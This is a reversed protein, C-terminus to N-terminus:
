RHTAPPRIGGSSNQRPAKWRPCADTGAHAGYYGSAKPILTRCDNPGASRSLLERLDGALEILFAAQDM